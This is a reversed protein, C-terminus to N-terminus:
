GFMLGVVAVVAAVSSVALTILLLRSANEVEQSNRGARRDLTQLRPGRGLKLWAAFAAFLLTAALWGLLSATELMTLMM